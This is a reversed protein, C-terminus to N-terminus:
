KRQFHFWFLPQLASSARGFPPLLAVRFNTIEVEVSAIQLKPKGQDLGRKVTSCAHLLRLAASLVMEFLSLGGGACLRRAAPLVICMECVFVAGLM